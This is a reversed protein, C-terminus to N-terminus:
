FRIAFSSHSDSPPLWSIETKEVIAHPPGTKLREILTELKAKEGEALVEVSNGNPLNRVYGSLGLAKAQKSAFDRFFVGQVSGYVIVRVSAIGSM